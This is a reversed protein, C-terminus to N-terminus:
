RLINENKTYLLTNSRGPKVELFYPKGLGQAITLGVSQNCYLARSDRIARAMELFNETQLWNYKLFDNAWVGVEESFNVMDTSLGIFRKEGPTEKWIKRWSVRSNNRWRQTVNFLTTEPPLGSPKEDVILWPNQFGHPIALGNSVFMNRMIHVRARNPMKRFDDMNYDTVLGPEFDYEGYAGSTPLVKFGNLELLPKISSYLSQGNGYFSEKIYLTDVGLARMPQIAYITDGAGGSIRATKGMNELNSKSKEYRASTNNIPVDTSNGYAGGKPAKGYLM